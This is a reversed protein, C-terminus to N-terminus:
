TKEEERAQFEDEVIKRAAAVSDAFHAIEGVPSWYAGERDQWYATQWFEYHIRRIFSIESTNIASARCGPSTPDLLCM